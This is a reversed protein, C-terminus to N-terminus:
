LGLVYISVLVFCYAQCPHFCHYQGTGLVPVSLSKLRKKEAKELCKRLKLKWKDLSKQFAVHIIYDAKLNGGYKTRETSTVGKSKM